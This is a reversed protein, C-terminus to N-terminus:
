RYEADKFYSWQMWGKFNDDIWKDMSGDMIGVKFRDMQDMCKNMGADM